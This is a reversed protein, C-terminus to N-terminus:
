YTLTASLQIGRSTLHLDAVTGGGQQTPLRYDLYSVESKLLIFANARWSVGGKHYIIRERGTAGYGTGRMVTEETGLFLALEKSEAKYFSYSGEIFAGKSGWDRTGFARAVGADNETRTQTWESLLSVPGLDVSAHINMLFFDSKGDASWAGEYTSVGAKVRRDMLMVGARGGYAFEDNNNTSKLNNAITLADSVGGLTPRFTATSVVSSGYGNVIYASTRLVVPGAEWEKVGVLGQDAIPLGLIASQFVPPTIPHRQFPYFRTENYLGLPLPVRGAKVQGWVPHYDLFAYQLRTEGATAGIKKYTVDMVFDTFDDFTTTAFLGVSDM